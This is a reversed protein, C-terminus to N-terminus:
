TQLLPDSVLRRGPEDGLPREPLELAARGCGEEQGRDPARRARGARGHGRAGRDPRARHGAGGAPLPDAGPPPQDSGRDRSGARDHHARGLPQPELHPLPLEQHARDLLEEPVQGLEGEGM